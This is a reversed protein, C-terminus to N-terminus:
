AAMAPATSTLVNFTDDSTERIRQHLGHVRDPDSLDAASRVDAPRFWTINLFEAIMKSAHLAPAAGPMTAEQDAFSAALPYVECLLDAVHREDADAALLRIVQAVQLAFRASQSEVYYLLEGTVDGRLMRARELGLRVSIWSGRGYREIQDIFYIYATVADGRALFVLGRTEVLATLLEVAEDECMDLLRDAWDCRQNREESSTAKEAQQLAIMARGLREAQSMTAVSIETVQTVPKENIEKGHFRAGGKAVASKWLGDFNAVVDYLLQGKKLLARANERLSTDNTRASRIFWVEALLKSGYDRSQSGIGEIGLAETLVREAEDLENTRILLNALAIRFYVYGPFHLSAERYVAKSGDLDGKEGLFKGLRSRIHTDWVFRQRAQWLTDLAEDYKHAEWLARAYTTWCRGNYPEWDLAEKALAVAWLPIAAAVKNAMNDITKVLFTSDGTAQTYTRHRDLFHKLEPSDCLSPDYRLRGAWHTSQTLSPVPTRQSGNGASPVSPQEWHPLLHSLWENARRPTTSPRLSDKFQSIWYGESSRYIAFIAQVTGSWEDETITRQDALDVIARLLGEPVDSAPRGELDPMKRFGLLGIDRYSRGPMDEGLVLRRWLSSFRQDTQNWALAVLYSGEPDRGPGQYLGSLWIRILTYKTHLLLATQGLGLTAIGRFLENLIASWREPATQDPLPQLIHSELWQTVAEDLNNDGPEFVLDLLEGLSLQSTAGLPVLGRVLRDLETAPRKLFAQHWVKLAHNM